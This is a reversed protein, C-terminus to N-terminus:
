FCMTEEYEARPLTCVVEMENRLPGRFDNRDFFGLEVTDFLLVLAGDGDNGIVRRNRTGGSWDRGSAKEGPGVLVVVANLVDLKVGGTGKAFDDWISSLAAVREIAYGSSDFIDLARSLFLIKEDLASLETSSLM